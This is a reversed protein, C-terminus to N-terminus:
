WSKYTKGDDCTCTNCPEDGTCYMLTCSCAVNRRPKFDATTTEGYPYYGELTITSNTDPIPVDHLMLSEGAPLVMTINGTEEDPVEVQITINFVQKAEVAGCFLLILLVAFVAKM